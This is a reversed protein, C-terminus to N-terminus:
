RIEEEIIAGGIVEKDDYFVVSQGPTVSKRPEDFLIKVTDSDLQEVTAMKGPDNYRIKVKYNNIDPLQMDIIFYDSAPNPYVHIKADLYKEEFGAGSTEIVAIDDLAIDSQYGSGTTGRFRINIIEGLYPTLDITNNKWLNGQNSSIAPMIDLDWDTGILVDVHLSGMNDGYMHYWFDLVPQYANTLDICPSMLHADKFYCNNSAELYIYAIELEL